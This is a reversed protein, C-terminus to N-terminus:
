FSDWLRKDPYVVIGLVLLLYSTLMGHVVFVDGLFGLSLQNIRVSCDVIIHQCAATHAVCRRMRPAVTCLQWYSKRSGKKWVQGQLDVDNETPGGYM